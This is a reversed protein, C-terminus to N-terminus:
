FIKSLIYSKNKYLKHISEIILSFLLTSIVSYTFFPVALAFCIYLGEISLGYMGTTWVGFNTILFFLIAGLLAGGLRWSLSKTFYQSLIGILLISGWTWHTGSHYGIILDTVAFSIILVPLFRLGLLVPVYFSLAILSTFNPPHPIFRSLALASFIGISTLFYKM